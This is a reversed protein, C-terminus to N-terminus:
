EASLRCRAIYEYPVLEDYVVRASFISDNAMYQNGKFIVIVANEASNQSTFSLASYNRGKHSRFVASNSQELESNNVFHAQTTRWCDDCLDTRAQVESLAQSKEPLTAPLGSAKLTYQKSFDTFGCDMTMASANLTTTLLLILFSM